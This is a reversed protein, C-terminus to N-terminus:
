PHPQPDSAIAARLTASLDEVRFPKELRALFGYSRFDAVIPDTAYGSAVIPRVDPDIGRPKEMTAKGGMAGPVTLDLIVVAFPESAKAASVYRVIAEDGDYEVDYGLHTLMKKTFDRIAADDDM